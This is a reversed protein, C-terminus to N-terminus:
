APRPPNRPQDGTERYFAVYAKHRYRTLASTVPRLTVSKGFPSMSGRVDIGFPTHVKQDGAVM